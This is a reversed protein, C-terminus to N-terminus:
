VGLAEEALSRGLEELGLILDQPFEDQFRRLDEALEIAKALDPLDRPFKCFSFKPWGSQRLGLEEGPGRLRLDLEALAYGDYDQTLAAFRERANDTPEGHPLLILTAKGGARGIRGRLQHLQALGLNEAGEILMVNAGPIDVGVEVITTSLLIDLEGDRFRRMVESRYLTELKGHVTGVRLEPAISAIANEMEAISPGRASEQAGDEEELDDDKGIRPSIAFAREGKRVLSALMSYAERAQDKEFVITEPTVRGPLVGKLSSIDMDGYLAQSLSRPIPTASMAILDVFPSKSRLALRQRVGFRHQEDIVVLSLDRFAVKPSFLAQTGVVLKAIGTELERLIARRESGPTAGTLIAIPVKLKRAYPLLFDYHQRCLLETPAVLAGQGGAGAVEFLLASVVATKGSGVEGQLLRNAPTPESLAGALEDIVRNQEPTLSYPLLSVFASGLGAGTKPGRPKTSQARREKERLILYRWFMLEMLALGRYAPSEKPLPMPEGEPFGPEHLERILATPDSIGHSELFGNPLTNPVPPPVLYGQLIDSIKQRRMAPSVGKMPNYVPFVGLIEELGESLDFVEPHSFMPEPPFRGRFDQKFTATGFVIIRKGAVFKRRLFSVGNFFWLSGRAGTGSTDEVKVMLYPKGSKSSKEFVRAVVARFLIDAGDQASSLPKLDRRDQYRAPPLSLLDASVSLGKKSLAKLRTESFGFYSSLPTTFVKHNPWPIM